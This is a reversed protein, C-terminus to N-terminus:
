SKEVLNFHFSTPMIKLTFKTHLGYLVQQTLLRKNLFIQQVTQLSLKFM